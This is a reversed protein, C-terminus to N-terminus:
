TEGRDSARSDAVPCTICCGARRVVVLWYALVGILTQMIITAFRKTVDRFELRIDTM